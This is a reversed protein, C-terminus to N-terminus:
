HLSREHQQGAIYAMCPVFLWLWFAADSLGLDTFINILLPNIICVALYLLYWM